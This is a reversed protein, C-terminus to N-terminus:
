WGVDWRRVAAFPYAIRSGNVLSLLLVGTGTDLVSVDRVGPHTTVDTGNPYRPDIVWVRVRQGQEGTAPNYEPDPWGDNM